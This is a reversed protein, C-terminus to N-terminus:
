FKSRGWVLEIPNLECRFKPLMLAVGGHHNLLVELSSDVNAFDKQASLVAPMSMKSNPVQGKKGGLFTLGPFWLGREFLIHKMGKVKGVHDTAGPEYFPYEVEQFTLHQVAERKKLREHRGTVIHGKTHYEPEWKKVTGVALELLEASEEFAKRKSVGMLLKNYVGRLANAKTHLKGAQAHSVDMTEEIGPSTAAVASECEKAVARFYEVGKEWGEKCAASALAAKELQSRHKTLKRMAEKRRVVKNSQRKLFVSRWDKEHRDVEQAAALM